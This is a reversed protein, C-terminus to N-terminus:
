KTKQCEIRKRMEICRIMLKKERFMQDEKEKLGKM